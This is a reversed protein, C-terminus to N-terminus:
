LEVSQFLGSSMWERFWGFLKKQSAAVSGIAEGVPVGNILANLLEYAPRALSDRYLSYQSRYALVWNDKPKIRPFPNEEDVGGLYASVPYQFALLRLASVPKLRANEWADAPITAIAEASLVPTEEADFVETLALELRALECVFAHKPLETRAAVFEPFHDGLRNLTYSRSPYEDVYAAVLDFFGEDCGEDVLFHKVAPFDAELAEEMRALYMGRYIGVRELSTLTDSPLVMNLAVEAPVEAQVAEARLADEDEGHALIFAQM